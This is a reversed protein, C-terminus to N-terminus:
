LCRNCLPSSTTWTSIQPFFMGPLHFLCQFLGLFCHTHSTQSVASLGQQPLSHPPSCASLIPAISPFNDPAGKSVLKIDTSLRPSYPRLYPISTWDVGEFIWTWINCMSIYTVYMQLLFKAQTKGPAGHSPSWVGLAPPGPDTGPRPLLDWLCCSLTWM